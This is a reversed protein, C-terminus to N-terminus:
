WDIKKDVTKKKQELSKKTKKSFIDNNSTKEVWNTPREVEVGSPNYLEAEKFRQPDSLFPLRTTTLYNGHLQQLLLKYLLSTSIQYVVGPGANIDCIIQLAKGSKSLKLTTM